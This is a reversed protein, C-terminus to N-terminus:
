SLWLWLKVAEEIKLLLTPDVIGIRRELKVAPVGGIGQADFVGPEFGRAQHSV